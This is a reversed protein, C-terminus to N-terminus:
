SESLLYSAGTLCRAKIFFCHHCRCCSVPLPSSPFSNTATAWAAAAPTAAASTTTAVKTNATAAAASKCVQRLIRMLYFKLRFTAVFRAFRILFLLCCYPTSFFVFLLFFISLFCFHVLILHSLCFSFVIFTLLLSRFRM